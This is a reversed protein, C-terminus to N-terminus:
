FGLCSCPRLMSYAAVAPKANVAKLMQPSLVSILSGVADSNDVKHSSDLRVACHHPPPPSSVSQAGFHPVKRNIM